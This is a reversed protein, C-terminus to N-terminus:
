RTVDYSIRNHLVRNSPRGEHSGSRQTRTKPRKNRGSEHSGRRDGIEFRRDGGIGRPDGGVIWDMSTVTDISIAWPSGRDGIESRSISIPSGASPKRRTSAWTKPRSGIYNDDYNDLNRINKKRWQLEPTSRGPL